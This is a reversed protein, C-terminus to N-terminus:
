LWVLLASNSARYTACKGFTAFKTDLGFYPGSRLFTNASVNRGGPADAQWSFKASCDAEFATAINHDFEVTIVNANTCYVLGTARVCAM